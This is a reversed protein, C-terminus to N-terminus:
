AMEKSIVLTRLGLILRTSCNKRSLRPSTVPNSSASSPPLPPQKLICISAGLLWSKGARAGPQGGRWVMHHSTCLAHLDQPCELVHPSLLASPDAQVATECNHSIALQSYSFHGPWGSAQGTLSLCVDQTYPATIHCRGYLKLDIFSLHERFGLAYGGPIRPHGGLGGFLGWGSQAM